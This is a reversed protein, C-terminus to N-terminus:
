LPCKRDRDRRHKEVDETPATILVADHEIIVLSPNKWGAVASTGDDGDDLPPPVLPRFAAVGMPKAVSIRCRALLCADPRVVDVNQGIVPRWSPGDRRNVHPLAELMQPVALLLDRREQYFL